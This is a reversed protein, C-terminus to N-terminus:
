YGLAALDRDLLKALRDNSEGCHARVEGRLGEGVRIVRGRRRLLARALPLPHAFAKLTWKSPAGPTPRRGFVGARLHGRQAPRLGWEDVAGSRRNAVPRDAVVDSLDVGILRGLEDWYSHDDMDEMLLVHMRDRGVVGSLSAVLSAFDLIPDDEGIIRRVQEEFDVQSAGVIKHSRQAYLSALWDTQNRLTLLVRVQGV